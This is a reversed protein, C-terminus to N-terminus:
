FLFLDEKAIGNFFLINRGTKHGRQGALRDKFFGLLTGQKDEEEEKMKKLTGREECRKERGEEEGEKKQKRKRTKQKRKKEREEAYGEATNGGEPTTNMYTSIFLSTEDELLLDARSHGESCELAHWFRLSM